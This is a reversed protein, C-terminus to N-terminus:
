QFLIQLKLLTLFLNLLHACKQHTILQADSTRLWVGVPDYQNQLTQAMFMANDIPTERRVPKVMKIPICFFGETQEDPLRPYRM